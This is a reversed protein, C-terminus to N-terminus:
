LIRPAMQGALYGRRFLENLMKKFQNIDYEPSVSHFNVTIDGVNNGKGLPRVEEPGAEGILALTPKTVIGGGALAPVTITASGGSGGGQGTLNSILTAFSPASNRLKQLLRAISDNLASEAGSMAGAMPTYLDQSSITTSLEGMVTSMEGTIEPHKAVEANIIEQLKEATVSGAPLTQITTKVGNMIADMEGAIGPHKEKEADIINQFMQLGLNKVDASGSSMLQTMSTIAQGTVAALGESGKIKAGFDEVAKQMTSFNLQASSATKDYEEQLLALQGKEELSLKGGNAVKEALKQQYQELAVQQENLTTGYDKTNQIGQSIITNSDAHSTALKKVKDDADKFGEAMLNISQTDADILKGTEDYIAFTTGASDIVEQAKQAQANLADTYEQTGQTLSATTERLKDLAGTQESAAIINKRFSEEAAANKSHMQWIATALGIAATAALTIPGGMGSLAGSSKTAGEAVKEVAEAGKNASGAFGSFLNTLSSLGTGISSTIKWTAWAAGISIVLPKIVELNRGIFAITDGVIKLGSGLVSGIGSAVKGVVEQIKPMNDIVWSIGKEITPMFKELVSSAVNEFGMKLRALMGPLTKGAAEASGGFETNLEQLIIKQASMVDGSAVFSKILEQQSDSLQVGSRRLATAGKVPDNLAKGLMMAAAPVDMGLKAAMNAAALTTQDFIDNGKGAANRINTFTLIVNAGQQILEDDIGSMMGLKESLKSVQNATVGAVGGTSKMSAETQAMVKQSESIEDWAMNAAGKLLTFGGVALGVGAGIALSKGLGGLKSSLTQVQGQFGKTSKAASNLGKSFPTDDATIKVKLNGVEGAM